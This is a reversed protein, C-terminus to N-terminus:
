LSGGPVDFNLFGHPMGEYIIMNVNKNNELLIKLLRCCDKM